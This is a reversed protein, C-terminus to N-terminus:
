PFADFTFRGPGVACQLTLGVFVARTRITQPRSCAGIGASQVVVEANEHASHHTASFGARAFQFANAHRYALSLFWEPYEVPDKERIVM